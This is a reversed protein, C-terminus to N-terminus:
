ASVVSYFLTYLSSLNLVIQTPFPYHTHDSPAGPYYRGLGGGGKQKWRGGALANKMAAIRSQSFTVYADYKGIRDDIIRHSVNM